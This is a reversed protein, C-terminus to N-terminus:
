WVQQRHAINLRFGVTAINSSNNLSANLSSQRRMVYRADIFFNHRLMYSARMEAYATKVSTGQGTFNDLEQARSDYSKLINGGWNKGDADVGKNAYMMTGYLTLKPIPQYRMIGIFERFNSGLPHALPQNNHVYNAAGSKHSYTFPRVANYEAQLDLNHIGFANVYKLGAQFGYKKAWSGRDVFYSSTKFEDILLQSYFSFRHLFDYRMDLGLLANDGSGLYAEVWRYFIIPNVYDLDFGRDRSFAEAEFVGVNLHKSVDFSVHHIAGFKKTIVKDLPVGVQNNLLRCFLNTYHFRGIHTDIKLFMYPTSFDSLLLSRFGNGFFNKDHGFQITIAKIPNFTLYGRATTFDTAKGNIVKKALTEGPINWAQYDFVSYLEKSYDFVYKPFVAQNDAIFSYFGLKKSIMGRLEVGRTTLWTLDSGDNGATLAMVPNLHFDVDKTQASYFDAPKQYFRKLFRKRSDSTRSNSWEWSDDRLYDLNYFDVFNLPFTRDELLTDVFQVVAKRSIPRAGNEFTGSFQGRSIQFRDILHYYDENFPIYSSQAQSLTSCFCLVVLLRLIRKKM